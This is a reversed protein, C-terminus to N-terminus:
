AQSVGSTPGSLREAMTALLAAEDKRAKELGAAIAKGLVERRGKPFFDVLAQILAMSAAEIEDGALAEGFDVDSVGLADAQPKVLVFLIDAFLAPDSAIKDMLKGGVVDLLNVGMIEKVRKITATNIALSWKRNANDCFVQPM